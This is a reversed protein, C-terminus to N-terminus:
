ADEELEEEEEEEEENENGLEEYVTVEVFEIGLKSTGLLIKLEEEFDQANLGATTVLNVTVGIKVM